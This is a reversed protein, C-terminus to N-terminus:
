LPSRRRWFFYAPIGGLVIGLGIVSNTTYKRFTIMVICACAAVFFLTSLPHWPVRFGGGLKPGDADRRRFIFICMGVFGFAIFDISVVYNLIQDYRGSVAIAMACAGQLVIARVPVHTRPHIRALQKFFL